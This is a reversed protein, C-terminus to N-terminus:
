LVIKFNLNSKKIEYRCNLLNKPPKVPVKLDKQGDATLILYDKTVRPKILLMKPLQRGTLFNGNEDIVM